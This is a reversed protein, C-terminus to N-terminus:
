FIMSLQTSCSIKKIIKPCPLKCQQRGNARFMACNDFLCYFVSNSSIMWVAYRQAVKSNKGRLIYLLLAAQECQTRVPLQSSIDKCSLCSRDGHLCFLESDNFDVLQFLFTQVFLAETPATQDISNSMGDANKRLM